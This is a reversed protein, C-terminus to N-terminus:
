STQSKYVIKDKLKTKEFKMVYGFTKLTNAVAIAEESTDFYWTGEKDEDQVNKWYLGLPTKYQLIYVNPNEAKKVFYLPRTVKIVRLEVSRNNRIYFFLRLPFTVVKVLSLALGYLFNVFTTGIQPLFKNSAKINAVGNINSENM